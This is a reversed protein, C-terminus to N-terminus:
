INININIDIIINININSYILNIQLAPIIATM